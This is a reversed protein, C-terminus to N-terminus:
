PAQRSRAPLRRIALLSAAHAAMVVYAPLFDDGTRAVLYTAVAPTVGGVIAMCLNYGIAVASCRVHAPVMECLTSISLAWGIANLATFGLQGLFVHVPNPQHMLAWCPWTLLITGVAGIALLTRRGIRDSLYGLPIALLAMVVLNISTIDLAQATSFHMQETLYSAAYVFIVFYVITTPALLLMMQVIVTGYEILAQKVPARETPSRAEPASTRAANLRLFLSFFAVATGLAFPVRWGWARMQDDTVLDSVLTPVGAGLVCGLIMACAIVSGALGRFRREAQEVIWVGAAAYEGAVAIGQIARIAILLIPAAVGIEAHVPLASIALSGLGMISVSIVLAPRRGYRDGIHGFVLSGIPRAAYGIALVAFASLLSSTPDSSPFFLTALTPALFGYVTFDYWELISGSVAAVTGRRIM